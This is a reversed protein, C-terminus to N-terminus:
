DFDAFRQLSMIKEALIKIPSNEKKTLDPLRLLRKIREAKVDTRKELKKILVAENPNNIVINKRM